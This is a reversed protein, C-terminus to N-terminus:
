EASVGRKEDVMIIIAFEARAGGSESQDGELSCCCIKKAHDIRM